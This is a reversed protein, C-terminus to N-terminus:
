PSPVTKYKTEPSPYLFGYTPNFQMSSYVCVPFCSFHHFTLLTQVYTLLIIGIDTELNSILSCDNLTDGSPFVLPLNRPVTHIIKAVEQSDINSKILNLYDHLHM